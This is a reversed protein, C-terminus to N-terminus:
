RRPCLLLVRTAFRLSQLEGAFHRPALARALEVLRARREGDLTVVYVDARRDYSYELYAPSAAAAAEVLADWFSRARFLKRRQGQERVLEAVTRVPTGGTQFVAAVCAQARFPRSPDSVPFRSLVAEIEEATAAISEWWYRYGHYVLSGGGLVRRVREPERGTVALVLGVLEDLTFAQRRVPRVSLYGAEEETFRVTISEPLAV